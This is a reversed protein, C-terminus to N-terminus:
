KRGGGCRPSGEVAIQLPRLFSRNNATLHADFELEISSNAPIGNVSTTLAALSVAKWWEGGAPEIAALGIISGSGTDLLNRVFASQGIAQDLMETSILTKPMRARDAAPFFVQVKDQNFSTLRGLVYMRSEAAAVRKMVQANHDNVAKDNQASLVYLYDALTEGKRNIVLRQAANLAAFAIQYWARPSGRYVNLGAQRWLKRLLMEQSALDQRRVVSEAGKSSPTLARAFEAAKGKPVTRHLSESLHVRVRGEGLDEFAAQTGATAEDDESFFRCTIAHELGTDPWRALGYRVSDSGAGYRKVVLRVPKEPTCCCYAVDRLHAKALAVTWKETDNSQEAPAFERSDLRVPFLTSM